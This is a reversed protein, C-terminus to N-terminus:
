GRSGWNPRRRAERAVYALDVAAHVMAAPGLKSGSVDHWRRLPVEFVASVLTPEVGPNPYLLRALLEVDFSWRSRFPENLASELTPTVRLVKAGCQTDYVPLALSISAFTAFIRGLYHRYPRREISRGLLAVRAAMVVDLEPSERLTDILRLLEDPPTSLDADYYAVIEAGAAIRNILGRRVAEAKGCNASLALVDIAKCDDELRRLLSLTGDNSGDDVLLLSTSEALERIAAVDLRLEEDFCPIIVASSPM